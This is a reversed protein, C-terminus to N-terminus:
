TASLVSERSLITLVRFAFPNQQTWLDASITASLLSMQAARYIPNSALAMVSYTPGITM